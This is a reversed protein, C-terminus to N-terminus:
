TMILVLYINIGFDLMYKFLNCFKLDKSKHSAFINCGSMLTYYNIPLLSIVKNRVNYQLEIIVKLFAEKQENHKNILQLLYNAKDGTNARETNCWDEDRKYDADLSEM